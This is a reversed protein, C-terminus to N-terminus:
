PALFVVKVPDEVESEPLYGSSAFGSLSFTKM